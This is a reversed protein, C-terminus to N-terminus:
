YNEPVVMGYPQLSGDVQSRYARSFRGKAKDWSPRGAELEGARELGRDLVALTSAVYDKKFFEEPYRQIWQAAKLYVEVDALLADDVRRSKLKQVAQALAGTKARLSQTEEGSLKYSPDTPQYNQQQAFAALASILCLFLIRM